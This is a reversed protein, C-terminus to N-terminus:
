IEIVMTMMMARVRSFVTATNKMIIDDDYSSTGMMRVIKVVFTIVMSSRKMLRLWAFFASKMMVKMRFAMCFMRDHHSGDAIVDMVTTFTKTSYPIFYPGLYNGISDKKPAEKNYKYYLPGWFGIRIICAGINSTSCSRRWM